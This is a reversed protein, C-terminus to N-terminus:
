DVSKVAKLVVDAVAEPRSMQVMHSGEVETVDANARDYMFRQLEPSLVLDGTALVAFSPKDHWAAQEVTDEFLANPTPKASAAIFAADAAPLDTAVNEHFHDPDVIYRDEGVPRTRVTVPFRASLDAISEGAEPQLAAVYVLARVKEDTGAGTIIVGGYSHGVLVTSGEVDDLIRRTAALDAEIGDMPLQVVRVVVGEDVLIDHVARWGSGDLTAGHVLIVNRADAVAATSLSASAIAAAFFSIFKM